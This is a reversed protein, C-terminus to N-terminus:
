LSSSAIAIRFVSDSFNNGGWGIRLGEAGVSGDYLCYLTNTTAFECGICVFRFFSLLLPRPISISTCSGTSIESDADIM